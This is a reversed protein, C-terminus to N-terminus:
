LNKPPPPWANFTLLPPLPKRILEERAIPSVAAEANKSAACAQIDAADILQQTQKGSSEMIAKQQQYVNWQLLGVLVIVATLVATVIEPWNTRRYPNSWWERIQALRILAM